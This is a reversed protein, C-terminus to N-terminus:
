DLLVIGERHAFAVAEARSHVGLKTLIKQLHTAVTKQTIFLQRAIDKQTKGEALLYLVERERKTLAQALRSKPRRKPRLGARSALRRVRALLENPDFPKVVYDDGGLLLGGIRDLSDTKVGSLFLIPLGEGFEDRLERCVEYGSVDPLKIDLVVLGPRDGRAAARAENGSDAERVAYGAESLLTAVLARCAADDDVVLVSGGAPTM